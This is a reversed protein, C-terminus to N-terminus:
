CKSVASSLRLRVRRGQKNVDHPSLMVNKRREKNKSLGPAIPLNAPQVSIIPPIAEIRKELGSLEVRGIGLYTPFQIATNHVRPRRSSCPDAPNTKM